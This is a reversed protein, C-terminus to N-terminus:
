EPPRYLKDVASDIDDAAVEVPEMYLRARVILDDHVTLITVGRMAFASNDRHRGQWDWEAWETDRDISWALLRAVFHPVGEFVATWNALVQSSGTFGRSPHAPQDSVYQEAFLAVLRGVDHSNWAQQLREAMTPM